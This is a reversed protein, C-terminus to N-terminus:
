GACASSIQSSSGKTRSSRPPRVAPTDTPFWNWPLTALDPLSLRQLCRLTFGGELHSIGTLYSGKFVVLYIPSLHLCLLINLQCDSIPRPSIWLHNPFLIFPCNQASSCLVHSLTSILPLFGMASCNLISKQLIAYATCHTRNQPYM